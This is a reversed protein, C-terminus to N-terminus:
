TMTLGSICLWQFRQGFMARGVFASRLKGLRRNRRAQQLGMPRFRTRPALNDDEFTSQPVPNELRFHDIQIKRWAGEADDFRAHCM